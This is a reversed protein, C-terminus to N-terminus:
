GARRRMWWALAGHLLALILLLPLMQAVGLIGLYLMALAFVAPPGQVLVAYALLLVALAAGFAISGAALFGHHRLALFVGIGLLYGAARALEPVDDATM